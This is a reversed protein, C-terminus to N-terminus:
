HKDPWVRSLLSPKTRHYEERRKALEEQDINASLRSSATPRHGVKRFERQSAYYIVPIQVSFALAIAVATRVRWNGPNDSGGQWWGGSPSWVQRPFPFRPGGGM